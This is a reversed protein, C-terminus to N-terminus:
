NLYKQSELISDVVFKMADAPKIGKEVAIKEAISKSIAAIMVLSDLSNNRIFMKVKNKKQFCMIFGMADEELYKINKSM